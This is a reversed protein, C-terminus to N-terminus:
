SKEGSAVAGIVIVKKRAIGTSSDAMSLRRAEM